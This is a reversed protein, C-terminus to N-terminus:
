PARLLSLQAADIENEYWLSGELTGQESLTLGIEIDAAAGFCADRACECRELAYLLACDIPEASGEVLLSCGQSSWRPVGANRAGFTYGCAQTGDPWAVPAQLGCWEGWPARADIAFSFVGARSQAWVIPYSFNGVLGSATGCVVGSQEATCLHAGAPDLEVSASAPADFRLTGAGNGDVALALEASPFHGVADGDLMGRWLGVHESQVSSPTRMRERQALVEAASPCLERVLVTDPASSGADSAGGTPGAGEAVIWDRGECALCFVTCCTFVV